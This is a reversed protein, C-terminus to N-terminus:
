RNAAAERPPFDTGVTRRVAALASKLSICTVPLGARHATDTILHRLAQRVCLM